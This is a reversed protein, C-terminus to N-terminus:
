KRDDTDEIVKLMARTFVSHADIIDFHHAHEHLLLAMLESTTVNKSALRVFDLTITSCPESTTMADRIKGQLIISDTAAEVRTCAIDDKIQHAILIFAEKVSLPRDKFHPHPEGLPTEPLSAPDIQQILRILSHRAEKLRVELYTFRKPTFITEGAHTETGFVFRSTQATASFSVVTLFFILLKLLSM